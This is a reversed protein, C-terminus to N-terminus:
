YLLESNRIGGKDIISDNYRFVPASTASSIKPMITHLDVGWKNPGKHGNVDVAMYQASQGIYSFLITGDTLVIASGKLIKEQTFGSSGTSSNVEYSSANPNKEIYLTDRGDYEPICGNEYANNKCIKQSNLLTYFSSWLAKCDAFHGNYHPPLGDQVKTEGEYLGYSACFGEEDRTECKGSLGQAAYPSAGSDWYGCVPNYGNASYFKRVAQNLVSMTKHLGAKYQEKRIQANITPVTYAAVIGIVVLAILVEALTFAPSITRANSLKRILNINM